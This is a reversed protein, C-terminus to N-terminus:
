FPLWTMNRCRSVRACHPTQCGEACANRAATTDNMYSTACKSICSQQMPENLCLQIEAKGRNISAILVAFDLTRSPSFLGKAMLYSRVRERDSRSEKYLSLTLQDSEYAVKAADYHSREIKTLPRNREIEQYHQIIKIDDKINIPSPNSDEYSKAAQLMTDLVGLCYGASIEVDSLMQASPRSQAGFLAGMMALPLAAARMIRWTTWV